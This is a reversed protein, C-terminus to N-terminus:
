HGLPTLIIRWIQGAAEPWDQQAIAVRLMWFHVAWHWLM